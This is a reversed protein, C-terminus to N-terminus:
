FGAFVFFPVVEIQCIESGFSFSIARKLDTKRIINFATVAM